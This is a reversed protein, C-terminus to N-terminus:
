FKGSADQLTIQEKTVHTVKIVVREGERIDHEYKPTIPNKREDQKQERLRRLERTLNTSRLSLAELKNIIDTIRHQQQQSRKKTSKETLPITDRSTSFQIKNGEREIIIKL